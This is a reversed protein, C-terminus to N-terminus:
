KITDANNGEQPQSNKLNFSIKEFSGETEKKIQYTDEINKTSIMDYYYIKDGEKQLYPYEKESPYVNSSIEINKAEIKILAVNQIIGVSWSFILCAITFFLGAFIGGSTNNMKIGIFLGLAVGVFIWWIILPTSSPHLGMDPNIVQITSYDLM